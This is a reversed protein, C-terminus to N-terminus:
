QRIMAFVDKKRKELYAPSNQLSRFIFYGEDLKVLENVTSPNLIDKATWNERRVQM